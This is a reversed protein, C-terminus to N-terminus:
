WYAVLHEKETKGLVTVTLGLCILTLLYLEVNRLTWLWECTLTQISEDTPSNRWTYTLVHYSGGRIDYIVFVCALQGSSV